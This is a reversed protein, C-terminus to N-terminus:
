LLRRDLTYIYITQGFRTFIIKDGEALESNIRLSGKGFERTVPRGLEIRDNRSGIRRVRDIRVILGSYQDLLNFTLLYDDKRLKRLVANNPLEIISTGSESIVTNSDLNSDPAGEIAGIQKTLDIVGLAQIEAKFILSKGLTFLLVDSPFLKQQIAVAAKGEAGLVKSPLTIISSTAGSIRRIRIGIEQSAYQDLFNISLNYRFESVKRLAITNPPEEASAALSGIPLVLIILLTLFSKSRVGM